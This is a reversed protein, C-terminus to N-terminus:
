ERGIMEDFHPIEKLFAYSREEWDIRCCFHQVGNTIMLYPVQLTMNYRAAQDFVEETVKIEPAKCEALMVPKANRDFVVVDYRRKMGNYELGKEVSILGPPCHRDQILFEILHQRVWEEPTLVVWKKRIEDFVQQVGEVSRVRQPPFPFNLRQM